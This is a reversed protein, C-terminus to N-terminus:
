KYFFNLINKFLFLSLVKGISYPLLVFRLGVLDWISPKEAGKIQLELEQGVDEEIKRGYYCLGVINQSDYFLFILILSYSFFLGLFPRSFANSMDDISSFLM